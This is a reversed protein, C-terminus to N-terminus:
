YGKNIMKKTLIETEGFTLSMNIETPFGDKFTSFQEGGYNVEMSELVCPAFKHFFKNEKGAYYYTINFESPYIFFLKGASLEPHMHFKFLKIIDEVTRAEELSKPMFKYKFAFKRFDVSEFIVEKFPNLATKSSASMISKLDTVGFAGPLKAMSAGLAAAAEGTGKLAGQSDFAGGSILGALTGLDKNAYNMSYRVVPPESVYLNISDSIRYTTDPKLLSSANVLAATAVGAGAAAALPIAEKAIKGTITTPQSRGSRSILKDISKAVAFGAVAGALGAGVTTATSLEKESLNASDPDKKIEAGRQNSYFESKGRINIAFEVYHLTDKSGLNSPYKFVKVNGPRNLSLIENGAAPNTREKVTVSDDPM